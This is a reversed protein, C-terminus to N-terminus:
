KEFQALLDKMQQAQSNEMLKKLLDTQVALHQKMTEWEEKRHREMMDSRFFSITVFKGFRAVILTAAFPMKKLFDFDFSFRLNKLKISPKEFTMSDLTVKKPFM